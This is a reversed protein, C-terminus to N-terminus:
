NEDLPSIGEKPVSGNENRLFESLNDSTIVIDRRVSGAPGLEKGPRNNLSYIIGGANGITLRIENLANVTFFEGKQRLGEGKLEGDVFIQIWTDEVVQIELIFGETSPPLPTDAPPSYNEALMASEPPDSPQLGHLIFYLSLIVILFFIAAPTFIKILRGSRKTKTQKEKQREENIRNRTEELYIDIMAKEDLSVAKAYAKIIGKIYFTGPLFDFKGEELASLQRISIKTSKSIDELSIGMM